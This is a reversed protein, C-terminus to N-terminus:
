RNLAPRARRFARRAMSREAAGRGTDFLTNFFSLDTNLDVGLGLPTLATSKASM